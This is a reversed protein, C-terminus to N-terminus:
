KESVAMPFMKFFEDSIQRRSLVMVLAKVFATSDEDLLLKDQLL